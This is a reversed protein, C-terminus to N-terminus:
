KLYEVAMTRVVQGDKPFFTFSAVFCDFRVSAPDYERVQVHAGTSVCIREAELLARDLKAWSAVPGNRHYTNEFIRWRRELSKSM